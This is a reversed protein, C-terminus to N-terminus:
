ADRRGGVGFLVWFATRMAGAIRSLRGATRPEDRPLPPPAARRELAELRELESRLGDRRDRDREIEGDRRAFYEDEVSTNRNASM